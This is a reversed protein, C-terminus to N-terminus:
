AESDFIKEKIKDLNAAGMIIIASERVDGLMAVINDEDVTVARSGILKALCESSVGPIANERIASIECLLVRKALSLSAAFESMFGATRSYTHPKFIVAVGGGTMEETAKIAASIETPHHAYDYYVPVGKYYGIAELRREPLRFESLARKIDAEPLGVEYACSAAMLANMANFKGPVSLSVDLIERGGHRIKLNYRGRERESIEGRYDCKEGVGCTVTNGEADALLERLNEDDANVVSTEARRMASLFSEKIADLDKFYDVHDLELNTFVSVTPCFRLFSDKYECAEYIMYDRSGSRLPSGIGRIKAGLLTTPNKGAVAFIADLMATTTTKGHSGSVGIRVKYDEMLVGLYEARSVAPIGSREAYLIEPNDEEAALTYVLLDCGHANEERHGIKVGHGECFLEETFPSIERDSASVSYGRCLSLKILPYIGVGGAGVFHIKAEPNRLVRFIEERTCNSHFKSLVGRREARTLFFYM